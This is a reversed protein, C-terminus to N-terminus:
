YNQGNGTNSINGYLYEKEKKNQYGWFNNQKM